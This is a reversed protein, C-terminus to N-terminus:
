EVPEKKLYKELNVMCNTWGETFSNFMNIAMEESPYNEIGSHVLTIFTGGEKEELKWKVTTEVGTGEIIWTYVLNHFPDAELVKGVINTQEHTFRYDYGVEAKFDAKIFWASIEDATSIAKWVEEMPFALQQTKEIQNKM